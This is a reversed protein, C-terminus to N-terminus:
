YQVDRGAFSSYANFHAIVHGFWLPILEDQQCVGDSADSAAIAGAVPMQLPIQRVRTVVSLAEDDVGPQGVPTLLFAAGSGIRKLLLM